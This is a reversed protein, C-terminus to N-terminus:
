VAASWVYADCWKIKIFKGTFDLQVHMEKTEIHGCLILILCQFVPNQIICDFSISISFQCIFRWIQNMHTFYPWNGISWDIGAVWSVARTDSLRLITIIGFFFIILHDVVIYKWRRAFPDEDTEMGNHKQDTQYTICGCKSTTKKNSFTCRSEYIATSCEATFLLMSQARWCSTRWLKLAKLYNSM